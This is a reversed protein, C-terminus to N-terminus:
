ALSTIRARLAEWESTQMTHTTATLRESITWGSPKWLAEAEELVALAYADALGMVSYAGVCEAGPNASGADTPDPTPLHSDVYAKLERRSEEISATRGTDQEEQTM